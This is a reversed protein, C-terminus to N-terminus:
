GRKGRKQDERGETGKGEEPYPKKHPACACKGEVLCTKSVGRGRRFKDKTNEGSSKKKTSGGGKKQLDGNRRRSTYPTKM